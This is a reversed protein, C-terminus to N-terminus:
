QDMTHITHITWLAITWRHYSYDITLYTSFEDTTCLSIADTTNCVGTTKGIPVVMYDKNSLQELQLSCLCLQRCKVECVANKHDLYVSEHEFYM